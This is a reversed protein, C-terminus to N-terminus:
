RAAWRAPRSSTATVWRSFRRAASTCLSWHLLAFGAILEVAWVVLLGFLSLPGFASLFGSRLWGQPLHCAMWRWGIWALRYYARALRYGHKVRRPLIVVEFADVLASFILLTAVAAAVWAMM